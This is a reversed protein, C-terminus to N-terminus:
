KPDSNANMLKGVRSGIDDRVQRFFDLPKGKPDELKWDIHNKAPLHPCADGCGMTVVYEWSGESPEPLGKSSQATIDMGIEGMVTVVDPNVKGSPRSGASRIEWQGDNLKRAWGEAMQSRCSNEICVFLVRKLNM